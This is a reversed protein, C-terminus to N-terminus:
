ISVLCPILEKIESIEIIRKEHFIGENIEIMILSQDVKAVVKWFPYGNTRYKEKYIIKDGINIQGITYKPKSM